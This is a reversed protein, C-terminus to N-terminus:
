RRASRRSDTPAEERDPWAGFDRWPRMGSGSVGSISHASAAVLSLGRHRRGGIGVARAPSRGRGYGYPLRHRALEKKPHDMRGHSEADGTKQASYPSGPDCPGDSGAVSPVWPQQFISLRKVLGARVFFVVLCPGSRASVAAYPPLTPMAAKTLPSDVSGRQLGLEHGLGSRRDRRWARRPDPMVPLPRADAEGLPPAPCGRPASLPRRAGRHLGYGLSLLARM